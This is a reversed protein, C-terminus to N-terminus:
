IGAGQGHFIHSSTDALYAEIQNYAKEQREVQRITKNIEVNVKWRNAQTNKLEEELQDFQKSLKEIDGPIGEFAAEPTPSQFLSAIRKNRWGSASKVKEMLTFSDGNRAVFAM